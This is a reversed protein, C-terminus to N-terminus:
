ETLCVIHYIDKLKTALGWKDLLLHAQDSLNVPFLNDWKEIDSMSNKIKNNKILSKM